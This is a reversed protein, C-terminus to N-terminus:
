PQLFGHQEETRCRVQQQDSGTERGVINNKEPSGLGHKRM